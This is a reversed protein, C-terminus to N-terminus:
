LHVNFKLMFSNEDYFSRMAILFRESTVVKEREKIELNRGKRYKLVSSERGSRKSAAGRWTVDLLCISHDPEGRKNRKKKLTITSKEM